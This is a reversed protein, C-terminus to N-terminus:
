ALREKTSARGRPRIIREHPSIPIIRLIPTILRLGGMSGMRGMGGMVGVAEEGRAAVVVGEVGEVFGLNDIVHVIEDVALEQAELFVKQFLAAQALAHHTEAEFVAAGM